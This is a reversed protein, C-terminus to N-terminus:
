IELRQAAHAIDVLEHANANKDVSLRLYREGRPLILGYRDGYSTLVFEIKDAPTDARRNIETLLESRLKLFIDQRQPTLDTPGERTQSFLREGKLTGVEASRIKSNIQFILEAALGDPM